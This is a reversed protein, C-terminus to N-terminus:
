LAFFPSACLLVGVLVVPVIVAPRRFRRLEDITGVMYSPVFCGIIGFIPSSILIFWIIKIDILVTVAAVAILGIGIVWDLKFTGPVSWGLRELLGIALGRTAARLSLTVALFCGLVGFTDLMVALVTTRADFDGGVAIALASVNQDFADTAQEPTISLSFSVAYFFVVTFLAIFALNMVRLARRRAIELNGAGGGEVQRFYFLMPSLSQIFLISTLVFPLTVLTDSVLPGAAPLPPVNAANWNPVMVLGLALIVTLVTIALVSSVKFLLKAGFAAVGTITAIVPVVYVPNEALGSPVGALTHLYSASDHIVVEAYIFYWIILMVFYVAGIAIGANRGLYHSVIETYDDASRSGMLSNIFLRQFLYMAPYGIAAAILFTGLGKMGVEVPLMAIGAGIGMGISIVVWGFDEWRFPIRAPVEAEIMTDPM